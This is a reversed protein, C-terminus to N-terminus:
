RVSIIQIENNNKAAGIKGAPTSKSIDNDTPIRSSLISAKTARSTNKGALTFFMDSASSDLNDTQSAASASITQYSSGSSLLSESVSQSVGSMGPTSGYTTSSVVTDVVRRVPSKNSSKIYDNVNFAM